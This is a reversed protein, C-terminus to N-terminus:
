PTQEKQAASATMRNLAEHYRRFAGNRVWSAATNPWLGAEEAATLIQVDTPMPAPAPAQPPTAAFLAEYESLAEDIGVPDKDEPQAKCWEVFGRASGAQQAKVTPVPADPFLHKWREIMYDTGGLCAAQIVNRLRNIETAYDDLRTQLEQQPQPAPHTYLPTVEAVQGTPAVESFYRDGRRKGEVGESGYEFRYRWAVPEAPAAALAEHAALAERALNVYFERSSIQRLAAQGDLRCGEEMNREIYAIPDIIDRLAQALLETSM